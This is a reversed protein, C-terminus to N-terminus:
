DFEVLLLQCYDKIKEETNRLDILTGTPLKLFEPKLRNFDDQTLFHRFADPGPEGGSDEPTDPDCGICVLGISLIKGKYYEDQNLLSGFTKWKVRGGSELAVHTMGFQGYVKLGHDIYKKFNSAIEGDRYNLDMKWTWPISQGLNFIYSKFDTDKRDLSRTTNELERVWQVM